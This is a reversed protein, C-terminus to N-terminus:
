WFFAWETGLEWEDYGWGLVAQSRHYSQGCVWEYVIVYVPEDLVTQTLLSLVADPYDHIDELM